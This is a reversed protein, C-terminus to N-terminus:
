LYIFCVTHPIADIAYQPGLFQGSLSRAMGRSLDYIAVHVEFTEGSDVDDDNNTINSISNANSM